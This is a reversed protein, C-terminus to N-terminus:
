LCERVLGEPVEDTVTVEGIARPLVWRVRGERVKKDRGLVGLLAEVDVAAPLEARCRPLGLQALVRELREGVEPPALGLRTALRAAVMMGYAVAEGHRVRGFGASKEVAHAATHGFNLIIRQGAEREDDGVVMAKTRIAAEVAAALDEQHSGLESLPFAWAEIRAFLAADRIVGCKVVEALGSRVEREPLTALAGTDAVVGCPQHFAGVLNKGEALNVGVKGGVAADVQGLLTTPVNLLRVGRLFTAAFFGAADTVAGGGLAVVLDDREFGSAAAARYLGEVVALSKAAEGEPVALSLVRLGCEELSRRVGAGHLREVAPETVLAVRRGRGAVGAAVVGVADLLGPGV